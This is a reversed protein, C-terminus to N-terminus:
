TRLCFNLLLCDDTAFPDINVTSNWLLCGGLVFPDINVRLIGLYRLNWLSYDDMAFSRTSVYRLVGYRCGDLLFIGLSVCWYFVGAFRSSM